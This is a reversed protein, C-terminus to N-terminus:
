SIHLLSTSVNSQTGFMLWLLLHPLEKVYRQYKGDTKEMVGKSAGTISEQWQSILNCEHQNDEFAEIGEPQLDPLTEQEGEIDDEIDEPPSAESTNHLLNYLGAFAPGQFQEAM